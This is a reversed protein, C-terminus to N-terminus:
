IQQTDVISSVARNREASTILRKFFDEDYDVKSWCIPDIWRKWYLPIMNGTRIDYIGTDFLRVREKRFIDMGYFGPFYDYGVLSGERFLIGNDGNGYVNWCSTSLFWSRYLSFLVQGELNMNHALRFAEEGFVLRLNRSSRSRRKTLSEASNM